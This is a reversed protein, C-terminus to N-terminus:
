VPPRTMWHVGDIVESGEPVWPDTLDELYIGAAFGPDDDTTM